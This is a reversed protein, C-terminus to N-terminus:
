SDPTWLIEDDNVQMSNVIAQRQEITESVYVFASDAAKAMDEYFAQLVPIAKDLLAVQENKDTVHRVSVVPQCVNEIRKQTCILVFGCAVNIGLVVGTLQEKAEVKIIDGVEVDVDDFKIGM